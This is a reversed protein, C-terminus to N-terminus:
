KGLVFIIKSHAVVKKIDRTNINNEKKDSM